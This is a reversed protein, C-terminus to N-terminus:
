ICPTLVEIYNKECNRFTRNLNRSILCYRLINTVILNTPLNRFKSYVNIHLYSILTM